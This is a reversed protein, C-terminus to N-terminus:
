PLVELEVGAKQLRILTQQIRKKDYNYLMKGLLALFFRAQISSYDTKTFYKFIFGNHCIILGYKYARTISSNLDAFSPVNSKPHNHIGIISYPNSNALMRRMPKNPICASIEATEDYYDYNMNIELKHSATDVFALDEYLTGDRHKIIKRVAKWILRSTQIDEGLSDIRDRLTRDNLLNYNIRTNKNLTHEAKHSEESDHTFLRNM